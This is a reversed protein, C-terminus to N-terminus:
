TLRNPSSTSGRNAAYDPSFVSIPPRRGTLQR